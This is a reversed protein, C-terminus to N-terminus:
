VLKGTYYLDDHCSECGIPEFGVDSDEVNPIVPDESQPEDNESQIIEKTDDGSESFLVPEDENSESEVEIDSTEENQIENTTEENINDDNIVNDNSQIITDDADNTNTPNSETVEDQTVTPNGNSNFTDETLITKKAKAM